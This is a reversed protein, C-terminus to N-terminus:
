GKWNKKRHQSDRIYSPISRRLKQLHYDALQSISTSRTNKNFVVPRAKRSKKHGKVTPYFRPIRNFAERSRTLFTLEATLIYTHGDMIM